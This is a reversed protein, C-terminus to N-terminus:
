KNMGGLRTPSRKTPWTRQKGTRSNIPMVRQERSTTEPDESAM